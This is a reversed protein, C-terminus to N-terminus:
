PTIRVQLAANLALTHRNESFCAGQARGLPDDEILFRFRSSSWDLAHMGLNPIGSSKAIEAKEESVSM